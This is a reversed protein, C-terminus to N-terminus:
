VSRGGRDQYTRTGLDGVLELWAAGRRVPFLDQLLASLRRAAEVVDPDEILPQLAAQALLM